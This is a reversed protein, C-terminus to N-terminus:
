VVEDWPIPWRTVCPKNALVSRLIDEPRPEAPPAEGEALPKAYANSVWYGVRVFEKGKYFCSLM